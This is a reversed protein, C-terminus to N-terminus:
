PNGPAPTPSAPATPAAPAPVAPAAGPPTPGGSPSPPLTPLEHGHGDGTISTDIRVKALNDEFIEIKAQGRLQEIFAKQADVRKDRYLKNRIQARADDISKVMAKRRGTQKLVYFTGNGADVVGSVDGTKVLKFAADIVPRPTDTTASSLYRLDGSRLKSDPDQTYKEVLDRFGKNTTGAEGAAELAVREAQGKSKVIIASVRVEEPKQYDALNADYYAKIEAESVSDPTIRRDFEDKVLKQIMVEKMTRVVEPDTDYHRRVAEKALIEFRIISDLFDKKQELSTYRARIYPSERNLLAQLEGVTITIDDVKALEADLEASSQKPAPRAGGGPAAPAPDDSKKQCGALGGLTAVLGLATAVTAIRLRGKTM